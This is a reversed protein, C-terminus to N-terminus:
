VTLVPRGPDLIDLCTTLVNNHLSPEQSFVVSLPIQNHLAFYSVYFSECFVPHQGAYITAANNSYPGLVLVVRPTHITDSPFFSIFAFAIPQHPNIWRTVFSILHDYGVKELDPYYVSTGCRVGWYDKQGGFRCSADPPLKLNIKYRGEQRPLSVLYTLM